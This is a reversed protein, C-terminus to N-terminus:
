SRLMKEVDKTQSVMKGHTQNMNTEIHVLHQQQMQLMSNMKMGQQNLNSIVGGLQSLLYEEDNVNVNVNVNDQMQVGGQQQQRPVNIEHRNLDGSSFSSSAHRSRRGRSGQDVGGDVGGDVGRGGNNDSNGTRVRTNTHTSM